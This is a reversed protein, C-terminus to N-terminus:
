PHAVERMREVSPQVHELGHGQRVQGLRFLKPMHAQVVRPALRLLMALLSAGVPTAQVSSIGQPLSSARSPTRGSVVLRFAEGSEAVGVLGYLQGM